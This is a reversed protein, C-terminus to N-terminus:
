ARGHHRPRREFGQGDRLEIRHGRVHAVRVVHVSARLVNRHELHRTACAQVDADDVAVDEIEAPAVRIVHDGIRHVRVGDVDLHRIRVHRHPEVARAALIPDDGKETFHRTDKTSPTQHERDRRVIVPRQVAPRSHWPPRGVPAVVPRPQTIRDPARDRHGVGHDDGTHFTRLGPSQNRADGLRRRLSAEDIHSRGVARQLDRTVAAGAPVHDVVQRRRRDARRHPRHNGRLM